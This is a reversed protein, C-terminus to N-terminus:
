YDIWKGEEVADAEEKTSFFLRKFRCQGNVYCRVIVEYKDFGRHYFTDYIKEIRIRM